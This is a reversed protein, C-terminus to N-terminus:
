SEAKEIYDHFKAKLRYWLLISAGFYVVCMFTGVGCFRLVDRDIRGTDLAEMGLVMPTGIAIIPDLAVLTGFFEDANRSFRDFIATLFGMLIPWGAIMITFAIGIRRTAQRVSSSTVGLRFAAMAMFPAITVTSFVWFVPGLPHVYGRFLGILTLAATAAVFPAARRLLGVPRALLYQWPSLPTVRLLDLGKSEREEPIFPGCLAFLGLSALWAPLALVFDFFFVDPPYWQDDIEPHFMMYAIGLFYLIALGQFSWRVMASRHARGEKWLLPYKGIRGAVGPEPAPAVSHPVRDKPKEVDRSHRRGMLGGLLRGIRRALPMRTEREAENRLRRATVFLATVTLATTFIAPIIHVWNMPLGPPAFPMGSSVAIPSLPTLSFLMAALLQMSNEQAQTIVNMEDLLVGAILLFLPLVIALSLAFLWARAQAIRHNSAGYGFLLGTAVSFMATELLVLLGLMLDKGGVGGFLLAMGEIPLVALLATLGVAVRSGFFGLALSFASRPVMLLITLTGAHRESTIATSSETMSQMAVFVAASWLFGVHIARGTSDTTRGSELAAAYAALAVLAVFFAAITRNRFAAPRSSLRVYDRELLPDRLNRLVSALM